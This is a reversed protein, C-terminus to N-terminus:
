RYLCAAWLHNKEGDKRLPLRRLVEVHLKQSNHLQRPEAARREYYLIFHLLVLLICAASAVMVIGTWTEADWAEKNFEKQFVEFPGNAQALTLFM